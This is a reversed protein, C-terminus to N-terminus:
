ISLKLYYQYYLYYQTEINGIYIAQPPGSLICIQYMQMNLIAPLIALNHESCSMKMCVMIKWLQTCTDQWMMDQPSVSSPPPTSTVGLELTLYIQWMLMQMNIAILLNLVFQKVLKHSSLTM